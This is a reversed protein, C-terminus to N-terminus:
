NKFNCEEHGTMAIIRNYCDYLVAQTRNGEIEKYNLDWQKSNKNLVKLAEAKSLKEKVSLEEYLLNREEEYLPHISNNGKDILLINNLNQWIRFEQFM